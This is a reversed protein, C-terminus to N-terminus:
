SPSGLLCTRLTAFLRYHVQEHRAQTHLLSKDALQRLSDVLCERCLRTAALVALARELSFEGGARALLCLCRLERPALLALSWQHNARLDQHRAPASRRGPIVLHGRPDALAALGLVAVQRAATEIALPVGDLQQCIHAVTRVQAEGLALGPSAEGAREIFLRLAACALAQAAPVEGPPPLELPPVRVVHEGEAHLPERSTALVSLGPYERLWGEVWQACEALRHECNDLVLLGEAPPQPPGASATLDIFAVQGYHGALREALRIAVSTKGIGGPGVLALLRARPLQLMLGQLLPERGVLTNLQVPLGLQAAAPLAPAEVLLTDVVGVFGYGRLPVNAIYREGSSGEGLARRLANIHVRLNAEEVVTAGWVQAIIQEKPIIQGPQRVLVELISLARSGIRVPRQERLLQRSHPHFQFPGFCLAPEAAAPALLHM